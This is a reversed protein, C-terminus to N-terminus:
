LLIYENKLIGYYILDEFEGWKIVHQRFLGEYKMGVKKMVEGSAPNKKLHCAYMKNLNMEEFGFKIIAKAAETCYGNNWYEKGIWYGLEGNEHKKNLRIGIAGILYREKKHTIALTLLKDNNYEEAHKKIWEEAMEDKYPHPINLTVKAIDKDGALKQVTSADNLSFPRLILRKSEITPLKNM